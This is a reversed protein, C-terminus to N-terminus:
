RDWTSHRLLNATLVIFLGRRCSLPLWRRAMDGGHTRRRPMVIRAGRCGLSLGQPLKLGSCTPSGVDCQSHLRTAPMRIVHTETIWHAAGPMQQRRASIRNVRVGHVGLDMRRGGNFWM